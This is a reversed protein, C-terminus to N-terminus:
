HSSATTWWYSISLSASCSAVFHWWKRPIYLMAGPILECEWSPADAFRPHAALDPELVDVQADVMAAADCLLWADICAFCM